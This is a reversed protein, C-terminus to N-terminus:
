QATFNVPQNNELLADVIALKNRWCYTTEIKVRARAALPANTQLLDSAADAFAEATAALMLEQGPVADIGELAQPSVLVPIQMAMAELVKNQIGRAIRL